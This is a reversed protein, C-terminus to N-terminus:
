AFIDGMYYYKMFVEYKTVNTISEIEFRIRVPSVTQGNLNHPNGIGTDFMVTATYTPNYNSLYLNYMASGFNAGHDTSMHLGIKLIANASTYNILTVRIYALYAGSKRIYLQGQGNWGIFSSNM